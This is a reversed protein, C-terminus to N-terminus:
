SAVPGATASTSRMAPPNPVARPGALLVAAAGAHRLVYEAVSGLVERGLGSHGRTAMVIVEAGREAAADLIENGALGERVDARAVTVGAAALARRAAELNAAAEDRQMFHTSDVLEELSRQGGLTFEYASAQLDRRLAERTPIVQVLDVVAEPGAIQAAHPIATRALPSGDVALLIHRYM